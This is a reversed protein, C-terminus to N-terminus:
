KGLMGGRKVISTMINIVFIIFFCVIFGVGFISLCDKRSLISTSREIIFPTITTYQSFNSSLHVYLDENYAYYVRYYDLTRGAINNTEFLDYYADTINGIYTFTSPVGEPVYVKM